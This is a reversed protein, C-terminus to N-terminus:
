WPICFKTLFYVVAGTFMFSDIRDLLGGHGPILNGSDKLGADRKMVSEILDGFLSAFFVVTGFLLCWITTTPSGFLKGLGVAALVSGVFGGTAGEVTKRPSIKTLQTKGFRKGVFYGGVDSAVVCGAAMITVVLGITWQNSGVLLVLWWPALSATLIPINLLRLKVWFSPLLGCYFLGFVTSMFQALRPRESAAFMQLVLIGFNTLGQALGIQGGTIQTAVVQGVCAITVAVTVSRPSPQIEKALGTTIFGFYEQSAQYAVLAVVITFAWSGALTVSVGLLAM